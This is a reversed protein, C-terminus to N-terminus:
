NANEGVAIKPGARRPNRAFTGALITTWVHLLHTADTSYLVFDTDNESKVKSSGKALIRAVSIAIGRLM